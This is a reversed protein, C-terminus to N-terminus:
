YDADEEDGEVLTRPDPPIESEDDVEMYEMCFSKDSWSSGPVCYTRGQPLPRVLSYSYHWNIRDAVIFFGDGKKVFYMKFGGRPHEEGGGKTFFITGEENVYDGTKDMYTALPAADLATWRTTYNGRRMLQRGQAYAALGITNDADSARSREVFRDFVRLAAGALIAVILVAIIMEMLTFGKKKLFM